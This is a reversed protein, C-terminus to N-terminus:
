ECRLARVIDVRSARVAPVLSSLLAILCLVGLSTIAVSPSWPEVDFMFRAFDRTLAFGLVVGAGVGAAVAPINRGMTHAVLESRRAGLASRIGYEAVRLSAIYSVVAYLGAVAIVLASVGIWIFVPADRRYLATRWRILDPMTMLNTVPIDPDLRWVVQRLQEAYDEPRGAVRLAISAEAPATQALPVYVGEPHRNEDTDMWLHPAVGVVRRWPGPGATTWLRVRRGLPSADALYKDAFHTNVILVPEASAADRDTFGRGRVVPVDFTEFFTPSVASAYHRPLETPDSASMGDVEIWRLAGWIGAYRIMPLQTALAASTVGPVSQIDAHLREWTDRRANADAYRTTDLIVHGTMVSTRAFGWEETRLNWASQIMLSALFFLAGGAAVEVAVLAHGLPFRATTGRASGVAAAGRRLEHIGAVVAVFVTAMVAGAALVGLHPVSLRFDRWSALPGGVYIEHSRQVWDLAYWALTGAGLIALLAPLAAELGLQRLLRLPGAGIARRLVLERARVRTRVLFLNAVNACAMVLILMGSWRVVRLYTGETGAFLSDVFPYVALELDPSPEEIDGLLPPALRSVEADLAAAAVGPATRALVHYNRGEAESGIPLWIDEREFRQGARLIGVIETVMGDIRIARGVVARDADYRRTWFGHSLIAVRPAGPAHDSSVLVRGHLPAIELLDFMSATVLFGKVREPPGGGDAFTVNGQDWLGIRDIGSLSTALVRHDAMSFGTRYAGEERDLLLLAVMRDPASVPLGRGVTGYGIGWTLTAVGLGVALIASAGVHVRPYRRFQRVAFRADMLLGRFPSPVAPPWVSRLAWLLYLATTAMPSTDRRRAVYMEELDALVFERDPRTVLRAVIWRAWAPPRHDMM